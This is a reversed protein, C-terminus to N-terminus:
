HNSDTFQSNFKGINDYFSRQDLDLTSRKVGFTRCVGKTLYNSRGYQEIFYLVREGEELSLIDDITGCKIAAFYIQCLCSFDKYDKKNLEYSITQCIDKSLKVELDIFMFFLIFGNVNKSKYPHPIKKIRNMLIDYHLKRYQQPSLGCLAYAFHSNISYNLCKILLCFASFTKASGGVNHSSFYDFIKEKFTM